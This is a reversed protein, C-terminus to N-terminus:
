FGLGKGGDTKGDVLGARGLDHLLLLVSGCVCGM